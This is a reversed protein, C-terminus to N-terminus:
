WLTKSCAGAKGLAVTESIASASAFPGEGVTSDTASGVQVTSLVAASEGPKEDPSETEIATPTPRAMAELRIWIATPAGGTAPLILKNTIRIVESPPSEGSAEFAVETPEADISMLPHTGLDYGTEEFAETATPQPGRDTAPREIGATLEGAETAAAV